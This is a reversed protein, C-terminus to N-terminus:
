YICLVIRFYSLSIFVEHSTLLGGDNPDYVIRITANGYVSVLVGVFVARVDSFLRTRKKSSHVNVRLGTKSEVM